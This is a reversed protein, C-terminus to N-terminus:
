RELQGINRALLRDAQAGARAVRAHEAAVAERGDRTMIAAAFEIAPDGARMQLSKEVMAYGDIGDALASTAPSISALQTYTAALYGADFLALADAGKARARDTLRTLLAAAIERNQTAYLAARRLTEMRVIVPTVPTLLALTDGTLQSIPYDGRMGKWTNGQVNWPLSTATGIDFPACVLPPGALAPVAIALVLVAAVFPRAIHIPGM